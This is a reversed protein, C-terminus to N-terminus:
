PHGSDAPPSISDSFNVTTDLMGGASTFSRRIEQRRGHESHIGAGKSNQLLPSPYLSDCGGKWAGEAPSQQM